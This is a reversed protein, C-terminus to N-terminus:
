PPAEAAVVRNRGLQKATYLVKDAADTLQQADNYHPFSALGCSFTAHFPGSESQHRIQAFGTRLDDLVKVAAATTTQPLIVAFEEGGYRAIVDTKRLRQQLLRSLSKIVRDGTPHGHTDNVLKFHDIDLIGYVLPTQQRQARGLESALQEKMTTHNLLGTLSDRVMFSRLTRSRKVRSTVASVLHNPQIPKTLFDDGGLKLADLQKDIDTEGSLFVIPTSVYSEQQRIVAALEMGTCEPMYMDILILDPNLEILPPVVLRPNTVVATTMGARKLIASNYYAMMPSDDVLLIRYPEEPVAATWKDLTDILPGVDIPKTFYAIGNARVAQLRADMSGQDAVFIIPLTPTTHHQLAVLTEAGTPDGELFIHDVIMAAPRTQVVRDVIGALHTFIPVTYGFYAIQRALDEAFQMDPSILFITQKDGTAAPPGGSDSEAETSTAQQLIALLNNVEAPPQSALQTTHEQETPKDM